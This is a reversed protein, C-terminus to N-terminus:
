ESRRGGFLWWLEFLDFGRDVLNRELADEGQRLEEETVTVHEVPVTRPNVGTTM